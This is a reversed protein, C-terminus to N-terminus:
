DLNNESCKLKECKSVKSFCQCANAEAVKNQLNVTFAFSLRM